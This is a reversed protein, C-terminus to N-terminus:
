ESFLQVEGLTVTEWTVSSTSDPCISGSPSPTCGPLKVGQIRFRQEIGAPTFGSDSVELFVSSLGSLDVGWDGCHSM